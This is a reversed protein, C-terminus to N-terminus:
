HKYFESPDFNFRPPSSRARPNNAFQRCSPIVRTAIMTLGDNVAMQTIDFCTTLDSLITQWSAPLESSLEFEALDAKIEAVSTAFNEAAITEIENFQTYVNRGILADVILRPLINIKAEIASFNGNSSLADVSESDIAIEAKEICNSVEYGSYQITQDVFNTADIVCKLQQNTFEALTVRIDADSTSISKVKEDIVTSADNYFTSLQGSLGNRLASLKSWFDVQSNAINQRIETLAALTGNVDTSQGLSSSAFIAITLFIKFQMKIQIKM